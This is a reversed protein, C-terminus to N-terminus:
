MSVNTTWDFEEVDELIIGEDDSQDNSESFIYEEYCSSDDTSDCILTSIETDLEDVITCLSELVESEINETSPITTITTIHSDESDRRQRKRLRQAISDWCQKELAELTFDEIIIEDVPPRKVFAHKGIHMAGYKKSVRMPMCHLKWTLYTRLTSGEPCDTLTGEEFRAILADAFREEEHTWKGSRLFDNDNLIFEENEQESFSRKQLLTGEYHSNMELSGSETFYAAM